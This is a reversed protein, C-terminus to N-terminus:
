TKIRKELKQTMPNRNSKRDYTKVSHLYNFKQIKKIRVDGILIECRSNDRKRIVMYETKKCTILMVEQNEAFDQRSSKATEKTTQM